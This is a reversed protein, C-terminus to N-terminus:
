CWITNDVRCSPAEGRCTADCFPWMSTHLGSMLCPALMLEWALTHVHCQFCIRNIHVTNFCLISGWEWGGGLMGARATPSHRSGKKWPLSMLSLFKTSLSKQTNHCVSLYILAQSLKYKSLITHWRQSATHNSLSWLQGRGSTVHYLVTMVIYRNNTSYFCCNQLHLFSQLM